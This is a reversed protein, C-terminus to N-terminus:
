ESGTKKTNNHQGRNVPFVTIPVDALGLAHRYHVLRSSNRELRHVCPHLSVDLVHTKM